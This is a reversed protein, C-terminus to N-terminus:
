GGELRRGRDAAQCARVHVLGLDPADGVHAHRVTVAGAASM